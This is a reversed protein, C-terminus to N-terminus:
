HFLVSKEYCQSTVSTLLNNGLSVNKCEQVVLGHVRCFKFTENLDSWVHKLDLSLLIKMMVDSAAMKSSTMVMKSM